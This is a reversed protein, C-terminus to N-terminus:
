SLELTRIEHNLKDSVFEIDIAAGARLEMYAGPSVPFGNAATVGSQGIFAKKNDNNYIWLYKRNALPSVIINQATNVADLTEAASAIATLALSADNVTLPDSGTLFTYLSGDANVKLSSYDGDASTSAALTDQRVALMHLGTDGSVHASDELFEADGAEVTVEARVKLFGNEDVQLPAYDGNASVLSTDADNRVALMFKGIDGSTHASDEAYNAADTATVTGSVVWPSTGQTVNVDGSIAVTGDVTISGGGDGIVWPSTGQEVTITELAALTTAGLEVTGDVTIIGGGDNIAISPNSIWVDLSRGEVEVGTVTHTGGGAAATIDVPINWEANHASIALKITNADVRIVYYDTALALGAPLVGSSTLQIKDGTQLGHSAETISDDGVIVDADVFAFTIANPKQLSHHTVLAGSEGSRVYAGVSHTDAVTEADTTDFILHDITM